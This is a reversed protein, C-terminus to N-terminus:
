KNQSYYEVAKNLHFVALDNSDNKAIDILCAMFHKFLIPDTESTPLAADDIANLHNQPSPQVNLM